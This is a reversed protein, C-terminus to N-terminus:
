DKKPIHCFYAYTKYEVSDADNLWLKTMKAYTDDNKIVYQENEIEKVLMDIKAELEAIKQDKEDLEIVENLQYTKVEGSTNKFWLQKFDKTIFLTDTFVLEKKVDDINNVYKIGQNSQSPAIQFNQTIPTPQQSNQTALQMQRDIRDRMQQLDNMYMQSNYPNFM